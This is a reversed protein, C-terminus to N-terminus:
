SCNSGLYLLFRSNHKFICYQRSVFAGVPLNVHFFYHRTDQYCCGHRRWDHSLYNIL